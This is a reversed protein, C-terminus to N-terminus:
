YRERKEGVVGLALFRRLCRRRSYPPTFKAMFNGGFQLCFYQRGVNERAKQFAFFLVCSGFIFSDSCLRYSRDSLWNMGQHIAALGRLEASPCLRFAASRGLRSTLAVARLHHSRFTGGGQGIQRMWHVLLVNERGSGAALLSVCFSGREPPLLDICGSGLGGRLEAM